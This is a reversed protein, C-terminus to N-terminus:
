LKSEKTTGSLILSSSTTINGKQISFLDSNGNLNFNLITKDSGQGKILINSPISIPKKFLFNGAPIEITGFNGNLSKIANQLAVSNDTVNDAKGGFDLISIKKGSAPLNFSSGTNNWDTITNKDIASAYHFVICIFIFILSIKKM